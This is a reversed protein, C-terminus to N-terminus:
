TRSVRGKIDFAVGEAELLRFRPFTKGDRTVDEFFMKAPRVFLGGPLVGFSTVSPFDGYLAEYVVVKERTESDTAIAHLRYHGGKFHVFERGVLKEAFEFDDAM